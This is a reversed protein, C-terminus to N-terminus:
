DLGHKRARTKVVPVRTKRNFSSAWVPGPTPWAATREGPMSVKQSTGSKAVTAGSGSGELNKAYRNAM